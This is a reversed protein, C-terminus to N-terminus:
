EPIIKSLCKIALFTKNNEYKRVSLHNSKSGKIINLTKDTFSNTKTFKRPTRKGVEIEKENCSKIIFCSEVGYNILSKHFTIESKTKPTIYSFYSIWHM